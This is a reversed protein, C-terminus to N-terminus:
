FFLKLKLNPQLLFGSIIWIINYLNTMLELFLFVKQQNKKCAKQTTFSFFFILIQWFFNSM